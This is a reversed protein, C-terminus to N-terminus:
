SSCQSVRYLLLAVVAAGLVWTLVKSFPSEKRKPGQGVMSKMGGRMGSLSGGSKGGSKGGGSKGRRKKKKRPKAMGLSYGCPHRASLALRRWVVKVGRINAPLLEERNRSLASLEAPLAGAKCAPQRLNSDQEAWLSLVQYYFIPHYNLQNYRRGTVGSAAPELGTWGAGFARFPAKPKNSM